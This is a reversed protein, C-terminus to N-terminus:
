ISILKMVLDESIEDFSNNLIANIANLISLNLYSNRFSSEEIYFLVIPNINLIKFIQIIKLICVSTCVGREIKSISSPDSYGLKISMTILKENNYLRAFRIIKGTNKYFINNHM